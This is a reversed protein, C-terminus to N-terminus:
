SMLLRSAIRYGGDAANYNADGDQAPPLKAVSGGGHSPGTNWESACSGDATLQVLLNSSAVANVNFNLM